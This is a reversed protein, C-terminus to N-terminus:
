AEEVLSLFDSEGIVEITAGSANYEEAKELKSTRWGDKFKELDADGIVLYDLDKVVGSPTEGGLDRVKQQAQKRPMSELAGTFLFKKGAIPSSALVEEDVPEPFEVDVHRLLDDILDAHRALGTTVKEAIVDGITHIAALDEQELARIDDLSDCERALIKSVHAGLEEIGLSRLFTEVPVERRSDVHRILKEALKRGVRELGMLEEVTLTYFDAPETVLGEDYLSELLKPGFGKIEMVDAFHEVQKIRSSRCDALHDAMLVDNDRYTPAGCTPCEEPIEVPVDGPEIVRELHPIVGGRRTMMVRSGLTLGEEGGLKEMIALNHLSARSVEAGSLFVPDVVGVPNIAGTRSVNWHVERLISQGSEGQFKYAIAYRPHHATHGMREQEAIQNAKYVVGDTDFDLESRRELFEDFVEQLADVSVIRDGVNSFGLSEAFLMKDHETEFDRGLVDYAFFHLEYDATQAPDKLKLAGATLNRPSSYEEAFKRRFDSWPMYVEGRVEIPGDDITEPVDVIRRVNETIVEGEEGNGRTAGLVLRGEGDYNISAAVGDIKPTVVVQGDFKGFWKRLTEEDYCKDLSLMPPDHEVKEGAELGEVGAGAEGIAELVPSDPARDRLTEVLRDFDPDSIVANNEVWYQRNHYEVARELDELSLKSWDQSKSIDIDTM